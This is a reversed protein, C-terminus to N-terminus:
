RNKRRVLITGIALAAIVTIIVLAAVAVGYLDIQPTNQNGSQNPTTTAPNESPSPSTNPSTSPATSPTPLPANPDPMAQPNAATLFPIYDVKGLNFNDNYDYIKKDIAATDTTGWWNYTANVDSTAYWDLYINYNSNNQINNYIMTSSSSRLYIGISNNAITNNRIILNEDRGMSIGNTNNIILNREITSGSGSIGVKFGYLINGSIYANGTGGIGYDGVGVGKIANNSIVASSQGVDIVLSNGNGTINNNSVTPSGKAIQILTFSGDGTINNNSIVPSGSNVDIWGNIINNSVKPSVHEYYVQGNYVYVTNINIGTSNLIANEIISGSGTQENWSTSPGRFEIRGGNFHIKDVSGGRAFLTGNVEIYYGGLNVSVGQEITLTVGKGVAMPGTLIYPSNAKTWTTDSTIIGTVNTSAQVTGGHLTVVFALGGIMVAILFMSLLSTKM